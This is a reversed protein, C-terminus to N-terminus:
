FSAVASKAAFSYNIDIFVLPCMSYFLKHKLLSLIYMTYKKAFSDM